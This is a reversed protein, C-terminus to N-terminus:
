KGDKMKEQALKAEKSDPGLELLKKWIADRRAFDKQKEYSLGLKYISSIYYKEKPYNKIYKKFFEQSKELKLMALNAEGAWYYVDAIEEAEPYTAIFNDFTTIAQKYNGLQFDKIGLNLLDRKEAEAQAQKLSDQVAKERLQKTLIKTKSNIESIKINSESINGSLQNILDEIHQLTMDNTVTYAKFNDTLQSLYEKEIKAIEAKLSDNDQKLELLSKDIADFRSCSSFFVLVILTLLLRM